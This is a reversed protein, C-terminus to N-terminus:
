TWMSYREREWLLCYTQRMFESASLLLSEPSHPHCVGLGGGFSCDTQVLGGDGGGMVQMTINSSLASLSSGEWWHHSWSFFWPEKRSQTSGWIDSLGTRSYTINDSSGPRRNFDVAPPILSGIGQLHSCVTSLLILFFRQIKVRRLKERWILFMMLCFASRECTKDLRLSANEELLLM